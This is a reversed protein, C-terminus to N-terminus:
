SGRDERAWGILACLATIPYCLFLHAGALGGRTMWEFVFFSSGGIVASLLRKGDIRTLLFGVLTGLLLALTACAWGGGPALVDGITFVAGMRLSELLTRRKELAELEVDRALGARHQSAMRVQQEPPLKRFWTEGAAPHPVPDVPEDHMFSLDDPTTRWGFPL